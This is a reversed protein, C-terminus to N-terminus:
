GNALHCQPQPNSEKLWNEFASSLKAIFKECELQVNDTPALDIPLDVQEVMGLIRVNMSFEKNSNYFATASAYVFQGRKNTWYRGDALDFSRPILMDDIATVVRTVFAFWVLRSVWRQKTTALIHQSDFNNCTFHLDNNNELHFRVYLGLRNLRWKSVLVNGDVLVMTSNILDVSSSEKIMASVQLDYAYSHGLRLKPAYPLCAVIAKPIEASCALALRFYALLFRFTIM